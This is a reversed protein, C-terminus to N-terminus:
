SFPIIIQLVSAFLRIGVLIKPFSLESKAYTPVLFFFMYLFSSSFSNEGTKNFDCSLM